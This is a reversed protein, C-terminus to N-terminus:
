VTAAHEDEEQYQGQILIPEEVGVMEAYNQLRAIIIPSASAGERVLLLGGKSHVDQAFVMGSMLQNVKVRQPIRGETRGIERELVRLLEPDYLHRKRELEILAQGWSLGKSVESEFDAAIKLIRGGLPIDRGSPGGEPPPTGDFGKAQYAVMKAVDELRPIKSLLQAGIDPLKAAMEREYPALEEGQEIRLATDPTLALCGLQSLMAAMEYKWLRRSDIEKAIVRAYRHIRSARSHAEPNALSLAENLLEISGKLTKELLEREGTVLRYQKVGDKLTNRLSEDDCPKTLLRFIRGKNVARISAELSAFGTLLVRTTDPCLDRAMELFAVGDMGPMKLDAVVLAFPGEERLTELGQKADQATHVVYEQSLSRRFYRTLREDDDVFLVRNNM